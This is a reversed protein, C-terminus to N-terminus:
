EELLAYHYDIPEEPNKSKIHAHGRSAPYLLFGGYLSLKCRPLVDRFFPVGSGAGIFYVAKDPKGQYHEKWSELFRPGLQDLENATPRLKIGTDLGTMALYGAGKNEYEEMANNIGEKDDLHVFDITEASDDLQITQGTMQHDQYDAGVGPLDVLQEIECRKLIEASGIGSRELIAPSGLAGASLVVLKRAMVGRIQRGGHADDSPQNFEVGIARTEQFLV